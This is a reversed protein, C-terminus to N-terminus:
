VGSIIRVGWGVLQDVTLLFISIIITFILVMITAAITESRSTWTVKAGEARVQRFFALPGIKKKRKPAEASAGKQQGKPGTAPSKSKNQAM